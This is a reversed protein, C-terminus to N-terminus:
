DFNSFTCFENLLIKKSEEKALESEKLKLETYIDIISDEFAELTLIILNSITKYHKKLNKYRYLKSVLKTLLSFKLKQFNIKELDNNPSCFKLHKEIFEIYENEEYIDFEPMIVLM